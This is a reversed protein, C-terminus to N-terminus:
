FLSNSYTLALHKRIVELCRVQLTPILEYVSFSFIMSFKNVRFVRNVFYLVIDCKAHIYQTCRNQSIKTFPALLLQNTTGGM